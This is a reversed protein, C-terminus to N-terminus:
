GGLMQRLAVIRRMANMNADSRVRTQKAGELRNDVNKRVLRDYLANARDPKGVSGVLQKGGVSLGGPTAQQLSQMFEPTVRPDLQGPVTQAQTVVRQGNATGANVGGRKGGRANVLVDSGPVTQAPTFGLKATSSLSSQSGMGNRGLSEAERLMRQEAVLRLAEDQSPAGMLEYESATAYIDNGGLPANKWKSGDPRTFGGSEAPMSTKEGAYKAAIEQFQKPDIGAITPDAEADQMYAATVSLPDYGADIADFAKALAPNGGYVQRTQPIQPTEAAPDAVGTLQAFPIGLQNSLKTLYDLKKNQSYFPDVVGLYGSMPDAGGQQAQAFQFLLEEESPQGFMDYSM